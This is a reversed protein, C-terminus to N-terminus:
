TTWGAVKSPDRKKKHQPTTQSSWWRSTLGTKLPLHNPLDVPAFPIWLSTCRLPQVCGRKQFFHNPSHVVAISHSVAGEQIGTIGETTHVMVQNLWLSRPMQAPLVHKRDLEQIIKSFLSINLKLPSIAFLFITHRTVAMQVPLFTVVFWGLPTAFSNIWGYKSHLECRSRLAHSVNEPSFQAIDFEPGHVWGHINRTGSFPGLVLWRSLSNPGHSYVCDTQPPRRRLLSRCIASRAAGLSGFARM